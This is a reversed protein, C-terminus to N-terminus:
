THYLTPAIAAPCVSAIVNNELIIWDGIAAISNIGREVDTLVFQWMASTGQNQANITGGYNNAGFGGGPVLYSLATLMDVPELLQFGQISETQRFIPIVGSM